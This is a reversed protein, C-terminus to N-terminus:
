HYGRTAGYAALGILMLIIARWIYAWVGYGLDRYFEEVMKEKLAEALADIDDDTLKRDTM